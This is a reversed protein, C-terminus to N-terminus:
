STNVKEAIHNATTDISNFRAVTPALWASEKIDQITYRKEISAQLMGHILKQLDESIRKSKSFGVKRELQTAIMKKVNSDDFPMSGCAIIYLIVGLSWIDGSTGKYPIGQLIEPATYAASGCYTKSLQDVMQRRSFGFDSVKVNNENDLLINECKLDRHVINRAHMYEIASLLQYFMIKAKEEPLAGRLKIYNLLDGRGALEMVLIIKDYIDIVEHLKVINPHNLSKLTDIERPLFKSYYDKSPHKKNIIKLAVKGYTNSTASMVKGYSGEGLVSNLEYGLKKLEDELSVQTKKSTAM